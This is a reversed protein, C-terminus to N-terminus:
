NSNIEQVKYGWDLLIQKVMCWRGNFELATILSQTANSHFNITVEDFCDYYTRPELM